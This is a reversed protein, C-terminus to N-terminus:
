CIHEEENSRGIIDMVADALGQDTIGLIGSSKGTLSCIEDMTLPVPLVPVSKNKAPVAAAQISRRSLDQTLLLLRLQGKALAEAVVDRGLLLRGAKRCIGLLGLLKQKEM